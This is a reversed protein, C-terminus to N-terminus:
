WKEGMRDLEVRRDREKEVKRTIRASNSEREKKGQVKHPSAQFKITKDLPELHRGLQQAM